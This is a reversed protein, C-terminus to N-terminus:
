MPSMLDLDGCMCVNKWLMYLGTQLPSPNETHASWYWQELGYVVFAGGVDVIASESEPGWSHSAM